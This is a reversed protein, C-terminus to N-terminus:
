IYVVAYNVRNRVLNILLNFNPETLPYSGTKTRKEMSVSGPFSPNRESTYVRKHFAMFMLFM